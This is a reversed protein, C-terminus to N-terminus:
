TVNSPQEAFNKKELVGGCGKRLKKVEGIVKTKSAWGKRWTLIDTWESSAKAGLKVQVRYIVLGLRAAEGGESGQM